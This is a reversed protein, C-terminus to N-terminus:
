ASAMIEDAREQKRDLSVPADGYLARVLVPVKHRGSVAVYWCGTRFYPKATTGCVEAAWAAFARVCPESGCLFVTWLGEGKRALSGDGDVLGRWYHPMLDAPGDWPRMTASKRPTVGLALLADALGRSYVFLSAREPKSNVTVNSLARLADKLKLLHQRDRVALQVALHSGEPHAATTVMCGDASIFGLWYAKEPTDVQEFYGSNECGPPNRLTGGNAEIVTNVTTKGLGLLAGIDRTSHGAEYLALIADEKGESSGRRGFGRGNRALIKSVTVSTVGSQECIEKWTRGEDYLRVVLAETEPTSRKNSTKPEGLDVGQEILARRITIDGRGTERAIQRLPAGERYRRLFLQKEETTVRSAM